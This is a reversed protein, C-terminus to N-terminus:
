GVNFLARYKNIIINSSNTRKVSERANLSMMYRMDPNEILLKLAEFLQFQNQEQILVGNNKNEIMNPISGVSTAICAKASAMAELLANPYGEFYSPLVFIDANAIIALKEDGIIWGKLDVCDSLGSIKIEKKIIEYDDGKGGVILNFKLKSAKLLKIAEILEFIGKNRTVWAMFLITVKENKELCRVPLQAYKDIDIINEIVIFETDCGIPAVKKFLTKWFSSQCIVVDVKGIVLSIFHSLRGNGSLDNIIFGSRPALIIKARSLNKAILSMIGKEWFSWGAGTFILIYDYKFFLIYFIFKFLRVSAKRIRNYSSALVNGDATTDLLTWDVSDSINSNIIARCAFMQGGVSGDKSVEKFSGVFLVKNRRKPM